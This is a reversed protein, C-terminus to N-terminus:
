RRRRACVGHESQTRQRWIEEGGGGLVGGTNHSVEVDGGYQVKPILALAKGVVLGGGSESHHVTSIGLVGGIHYIGM